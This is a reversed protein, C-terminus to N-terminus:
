RGGRERAHRRMRESFRIAAAVVRYHEPQIEQGVEITAFLARATPPDSHIPVGAVNAAERIRAAIEDVGKALCKPARGSGREWKLAVAYHTPNVIVVDAQPVDALMRNTAIEVGRQRRQAKMHPDGDSQKMEDIIEQRSMRNRRMHEARQWLYDIASIAVAVIFVISVFEVTLRLLTATAMEPTLYQTMLIQDTRGLIFNGLITSIIVLKVFNKFFEFLGGRGFKQVANSMPNIRSMKPMLKEPAFVIARQAGLFALVIVPPLIFIFSVTALVGSLMGFIPGSGGSLFLDSLRDSQDLLVMLRTGFATLGVTGFGIVAILFGGYSAAVSIEASRVLEGRKRAEDLKQQTPEHEKETDDSM